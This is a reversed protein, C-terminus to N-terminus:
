LMRRVSETWLRRRGQKCLQCRDAAGTGRQQQQQQQQQSEEDQDSSSSGAQKTTTTNPLQQRQQLQQQLQQLEQQLQQMQKSQEAQQERLKRQQEQVGFILEFQRAFEKSTWAEFLRVSKREQLLEDRLEGWPQLHDQQQEM